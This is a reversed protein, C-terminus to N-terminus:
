SLPVREDIAAPSEFFQLARAINAPMQLRAPDYGPLLIVLMRPAVYCLQRWFLKRSRRLSLRKERSSLGKHYEALVIREAAMFTGGVHFFAHLLGRIRIRYSGSIAMFADHCVSRHEFEEAVHWLLLNAGGPAADEFLENCREYLYKAAYTAISEFGACYAVNFALSRSNRQEKLQAGLREVLPGLATHGNDFMHKNFRKHLQSHVAEQRLFIDLEACLQPHEDAIKKRVAFIVDNLYYEVYPIAVSYGNYTLSFEPTRSWILPSQEVALDPKRSLM